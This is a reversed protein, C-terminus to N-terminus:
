YLKIYIVSFLFYKLYRNVFELNETIIYRAKTHIRSIRVCKNREGVNILNFSTSDHFSCVLRLLSLSFLFVTESFSHSGSVASLNKLSSAGFSSSTKGVLRDRIITHCVFGGILLAETRM